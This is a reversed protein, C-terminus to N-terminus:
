GDQGRLNRPEYYEVTLSFRARLSAGGMEFEPGRTPTRFRLGV